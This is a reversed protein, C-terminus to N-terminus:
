KKSNILVMGAAKQIKIEMETALDLSDEVQIDNEDDDFEFSFTDDSNDSTDKIAELVADEDFQSEDISEGSIFREKSALDLIEEIEEQTREVFECKFGSQSLREKISAITGM